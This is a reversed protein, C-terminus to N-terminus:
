ASRKMMQMVLEDYATHSAAQMCGLHHRLCYNRVARQHSEFQQRYEAQMQETVTVHLTTGTETDVLRADGLLSPAAEEAAHLQVVLLDTGRYRLQDLATEFGDPDYLDSIVVVLGTQKPSHLLQRVAAATSAVGDALPLHELFKMLPLIRARGRTLPFRRTVDPGYGLVTVRDFDSLAIYALAATVQRALDFKTPRGFDMSRSCDLLFGVHLDQEEHFRKLLLDGFRAYITWDLDRVDDGPTYQRHDAFEIGGGHRRSRRQALLSGRFVRRSVLSLYELRTLFDSPFLESM